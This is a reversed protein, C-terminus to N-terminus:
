VRHLTRRYRAALLTLAVGNVAVGAILAPLLSRGEVALWLAKAAWFTPALGALWQWPEAVFFALVPLMLLVNLLKLLALGAVKNDALAALLLALLPSSPAALLAVALGIAPPLPLLGTLPLCLLTVAMGVVTPLLLRYGLYDGPAVPTVLLAILTRDDREDLLLFGVVMGVMTPALLVYGALLLPLYPALEFGLRQALLQSLAPVGFRLALALAPPLLAIWVLLPDRVVNRADIPGLRRLLAVM